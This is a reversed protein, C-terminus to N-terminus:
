ETKGCWYALEDRLKTNEAELKEIIAQQKNGARRSEKLSYQLGSIRLEVNHLLELALYEGGDNLLARLTTLSM